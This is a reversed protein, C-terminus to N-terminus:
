WKCPDVATWDAKRIYYGRGDIYEKGQLARVPAFIIRLWGDGTDEVTAAAKKLIRGVVRAQNDPEEVVQCQDGKIWGSLEACLASGPLLGIMAIVAISIVCTKVKM